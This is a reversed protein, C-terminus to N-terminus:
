ILNVPSSIQAVEVLATTNAPGESLIKERTKELIIVDKM